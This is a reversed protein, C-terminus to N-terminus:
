DKKRRGFLGRKPKEPATEPEEGTDTVWAEPEDPEPRESETLAKAREAKVENVESRATARM